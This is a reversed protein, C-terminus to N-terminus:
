AVSHSVRIAQLFNALNSVFFGRQRVYQHALLARAAGRGLRLVYARLRFARKPDISNFFEREPAIRFIGPGYLRREKESTPSWAM